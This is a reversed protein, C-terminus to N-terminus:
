KRIAVNPINNHLKNHIINKAKFEFFDRRLCDNEM